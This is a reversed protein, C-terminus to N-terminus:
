IYLLWSMRWIMGGSLTDPNEERRTTVCGFGTRAVLVLVDGVRRRVLDALGEDGGRSRPLFRVAM